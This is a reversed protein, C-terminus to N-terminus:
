AVASELIALTGADADLRALCGLPLTLSNPVHGFPFGTIAPKGLPVIYDRWVDDLTIGPEGADERDWDTVTGIVFGAARDLIGARLLQMLLRDVRYAREAIDEILVIKGEFDPAEPTGAAAGLLALCGGALRGEAMGGVLTRVNARETPYIGYPEARGVIRWFCDDAPESHGTGVTGHATLMPGYITVIGASLYRALALHLTTIDSFGIFLKPNAAVAQWDIHELTRVSGYGGCACFVADVESDVFMATFDAARSCDTGALYGRGDYLHDGLKLKFGFEELRRM